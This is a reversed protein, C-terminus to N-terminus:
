LLFSPFLILHPTTSIFSVLPVVLFHLRPFHRRRASSSLRDVAVPTPSFPRRRHPIGGRYNCSPSPPKKKAAPVRVLRLSVLSSHFRPTSTYTCLALRFFLRINNRM